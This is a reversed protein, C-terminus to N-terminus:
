GASRGWRGACCTSSRRSPSRRNPIMGSWWLFGAFVGAIRDGLEDQHVLIRDGAHLWGLLKPYLEGLVTPIDAYVGM